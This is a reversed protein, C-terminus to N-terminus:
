HHIMVAAEWRSTVREKASPRAPSLANVSKATVNGTIGVEKTLLVQIFYHNLHKSPRQTISKVKLKEPRKDTRPKRSLDKGINDLGFKQKIRNM